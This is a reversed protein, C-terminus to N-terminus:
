KFARRLILDIVINIANWFSQGKSMSYKTYKVKTPIEVFRLKARKIQEMIESAHAFGNERLHIQSAAERTFARLGNHADSLWMGTLFGNVVVAGKLLIRKSLPMERQDSRDMFRSGLAVDAKGKRLPELLRDIDQPRHQGDADFTVIYDAKKSLAYEFGTQLAAGQGLNIPHSLLHIKLGQLLKRTEDQSGDDIVVVEYPHELLRSVTQAIIKGENYAPVIVFASHLKTQAIEKM